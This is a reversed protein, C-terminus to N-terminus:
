AFRVCSFSPAAATERERREIAQSSRGHLFGGRRTKMSFNNFSEVRELGQPPKGEVLTSLVDFLQPSTFAYVGTDIVDSM